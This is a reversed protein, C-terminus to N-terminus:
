ILWSPLEAIASGLNRKYKIVNKLTMAFFNTFSKQLAKYTFTPAQCSSLSAWALGCGGVSFVALKLFMKDVYSYLVQQIAHVCVCACLCVVSLAQVATFM